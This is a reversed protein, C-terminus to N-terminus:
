AELEALAEQAERLAARLRELAEGVRGRDGAARDVAERARALGDAAAALRARPGAGGGGGAALRGVEERVAAESAGARVASSALDEAAREVERTAERDRAESRAGAERLDDELRHVDSRVTGWERGLSEPSGAGAWALADGLRAGVERRAREGEEVVGLTEHLPGLVSDPRIRFRAWSGALMRLASALDSGGREARRIVEPLLATYDPALIAECWPCRGAIVPGEVLQDLQFDRGCTLCTAMIKM